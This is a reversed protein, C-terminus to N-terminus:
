RAVPVHVGHDAAIRQLNEIEALVAESLDDDAASRAADLSTYQDELRRKLVAAFDGM